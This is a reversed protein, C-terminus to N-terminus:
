VKGGQEALETKVLESRKMDPNNCIDKLIERKSINENFKASKQQFFLKGRMDHNKTLRVFKVFPHNQHQNNVM